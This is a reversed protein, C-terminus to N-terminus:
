RNYRQVLTSRHNPMLDIHVSLELNTMHTRVYLDHKDDYRVAVSDRPRLSVKEQAKLAGGAGVSPPGFLHPIELKAITTRRSREASDTETFCGPHWFLFYHGKRDEFKLSCFSTYSTSNVSSLIDGDEQVHVPRDILTSRDYVSTFTEQANQGLRVITSFYSQKTTYLEKKHYFVTPVYFTRTVPSCYPSLAQAEPAYELQNPFVRQWSAGTQHLIVALPKGERACALPVAWSRDGFIKGEAPTCIREFEIGRNTVRYPARTWHETDGYAHFQVHRSTVFAAPSQALLGSSSLEEDEWAFITEDSSHQIIEYQLRLFAKSGEGYILPMNIDFLGLLSYAQDEERSTHRRAAWSMKTAICAPMPDELHDPSIRCIKSLATKLFRRSGIEVWRRDYFIVTPPALLEQLTWGRTFWRSGEFASSVGLKEPALSFDALHVYCVRSNAYWKWMSNISETLEASSSKDICCTDIWVYRWGESAALACCSKVKEYGASYQRDSRSWDPFVFEDEGWTHSLIAYHPVNASHFEELRLTSTNVLRMNDLHDLM